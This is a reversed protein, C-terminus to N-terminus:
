PSGRGQEKGSGFNNEPKRFGREKRNTANPGNKTSWSSQKKAASNTTVEPPQLYLDSRNATSNTVDDLRCVSWVKTYLQWWGWGRLEGYIRANRQICRIAVARNLVKRIRRRATWMRAVAQLRGFLDFLLLDRREELDALVGAKFFIKSMGIKFLSSDLELTGAGDSFGVGVMRRCAERGDMYGKPIIGPAILVEYRQRFEVFPLRNPYGLRAIRIGELVGNCRLQDLVLPVDVRGPKKNANPVICRVFHPQTAMLQSMLSTLQERHRQGVTRFAGKKGKTGRKKSMTGTTFMNPTLAGPIPADTYEAFMEAVYRETSSAIVRTLNDNLPDKNKELWGETRYEVKAAYHQILFGQDFRSPEYQARGPHTQQPDEADGGVGAWLSHLKHTFTADTAKPM